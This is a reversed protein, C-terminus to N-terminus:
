GLKQCQWPCSGATGIQTEGNFNGTELKKSPPLGLLLAFINGPCYRLLSDPWMKRNSRGSVLLVKSNEDTKLAGSTNIKRNEPQNM